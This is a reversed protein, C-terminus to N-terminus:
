LQKFECEIHKQHITLVAYSKPSGGRPLSTSGPNILYYGGEEIFMPMHTHGSILVQCQTTELMEKMAMERNFYGFYQGHTVLIKLGEIDLIAEKPLDLYWDNNGKVCIYGQLLEQRSTESDGCHIYYDATPELEKIKKLMIDQGHNDSMVVVKKM